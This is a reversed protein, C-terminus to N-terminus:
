EQGNVDGSEFLVRVCGWPFTERLSKCTTIPKRWGKKNWMTYMYVRNDHSRLVHRMAEGREWDIHWSVEHLFWALWQPNKCAEYAEQPSDYQAFWEYAPKCACWRTLLELAQEKTM